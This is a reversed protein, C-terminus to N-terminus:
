SLAASCDNLGLAAENGPMNILAYETADSMDLYWARCPVGIVGRRHEVSLCNYQVVISSIMGGHLYAFRESV